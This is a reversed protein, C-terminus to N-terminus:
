FKKPMTIEGWKFEEVKTKIEVEDQEEIQKDIEETKENLIEEFKDTYHEISAEMRKQKTMKYM